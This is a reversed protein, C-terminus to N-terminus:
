IPHSYYFSVIRRNTLISSQVYDCRQFRHFWCLFILKHGTSCTSPCDCQRVRTDAYSAQRAYKQNDLSSCFPDQVMRPTSSDPPSNPYMSTWPTFSTNGNPVHRHSYLRCSLSGASRGLYLCPHLICTLPHFSSTQM